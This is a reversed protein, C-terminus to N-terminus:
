SPTLTMRRGPEPPGQAHRVTLYQGFWRPFRVFDGLPAEPGSETSALRVWRNVRSADPWDAEAAVINFTTKTLTATLDARFRYFEDMGHTADGVLVLRADGILDLLPRTGDHSSEFRFAARRVEDAMANDDM